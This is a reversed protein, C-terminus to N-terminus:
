DCEDAMPLLLVECIFCKGEKKLKDVEEHTLGRIEYLERPKEDTAGHSDEESENDVEEPAESFDRNEEIVNV